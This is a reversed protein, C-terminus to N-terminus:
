ISNKYKLLKQMAFIQAETVTKFEWEKGSFLTNGLDFFWVFVSEGSSEDIVAESREILLGSEAFTEFMLGTDTFQIDSHNM